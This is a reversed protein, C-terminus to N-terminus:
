ETVVETQQLKAQWKEAEEPKNWAEYLDILNRCKSLICCCPVAHHRDDSLNKIFLIKHLNDDVYM